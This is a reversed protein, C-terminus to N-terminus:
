ATYIYKDNILKVSSPLSYKLNRFTYEHWGLSNICYEQVDDIPITGGSNRIYDVVIDTYKKPTTGLPLIRPSRYYNFEKPYYTRLLDYLFQQNSIGLANFEDPYDSLLRKAWIDDINETEFINHIGDIVFKIDPKSIDIYDIHVFVGKKIRLFSDMRTVMSKLARDSSIKYEKFGEVDSLIQRFKEIDKKNYVNLGKPFFNKLLFTMVDCKDSVNLMFNKNNVIITRQKEYLYKKLHKKNIIGLHDLQNAATTLNQEQELVELIKDESTKSESYVFSDKIVFSEDYIMNLTAIVQQLSTEGLIEQINSKLTDIPAINYNDLFLKYYPYFIKRAYIFTETKTFRQFIQRVREYSINYDDGISALTQGKLRKIIVEANRPHTNKSIRQHIISFTESFTINSMFSLDSEEVSYLLCKTQKNTKDLKINDM